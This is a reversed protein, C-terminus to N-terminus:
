TASSWTSYQHLRFEQPPLSHGRVKGEFQATYSAHQNARLVLSGEFRQGIQIPVPETFVFRMQAWHTPPADPATTLRVREVSGEFTVDFWGALGSIEGPHAALFRFPLRIEALADLELSRFDYSFVVPSAMLLNPPVLGVAPQAFLEEAATEALSSFDVGLFDTRRWFSLRALRSTYLERDSFPALWVRGTAPFLAGGPRLFRDRARLFTEVMREHFLFFGWPESIIIDVQEPLTLDSLTAQIVDVRDSVKNHAILRRAFDAAATQEVAFVRRAGAQAAFISLIGTGAGVDLVTRGEFDPRNIIIGRQYASTRVEDELMQQQHILREYHFSHIAGWEPLVSVHELKAPAGSAGSASSATPATPATSGSDNV